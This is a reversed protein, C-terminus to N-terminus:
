PRIEHSYGHCVSSEETAFVLLIGDQHLGMRLANNQEVLKKLIATIKSFIVALKMSLQTYAMADRFLLQVCNHPSIVLQQPSQKRFYPVHKILGREWVMHSSLFHGPVVHKCM